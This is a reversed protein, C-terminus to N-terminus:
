SIQIPIKQAEYHEDLLMAAAIAGRSPEIILFAIRTVDGRTLNWLSQPRIIGVVNM